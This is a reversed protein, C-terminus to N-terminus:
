QSGHNGRPRSPLRHAITRRGGVPVVVTEGDSWHRGLGYSPVKTWSHHSGCAAGVTSLYNPLALVSLSCGRDDRSVHDCGGGGRRRIGPQHFVGSACIAFDWQGGRLARPRAHILSRQGRRTLFSACSRVPGLGTSQFGVGSQAYSSSPAACLGLLSLEGRWSCPWSWLVKEKPSPPGSEWSSLSGSGLPSGRRPFLPALAPAREVSSSSKAVASCGRDVGEGGFSSAINFVSWHGVVICIRGSVSAVCAERRMAGCRKAM